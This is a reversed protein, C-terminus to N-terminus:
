VRSTVSDTLRIQCKRQMKRTPLQYQHHDHVRFRIANSNYWNTSACQTFSEGSDIACYKFRTRTTSSIACCSPRLTYVFEPKLRTGRPVPKGISLEAAHYDLTQSLISCLSVRKLNASFDILFRVSLNQLNHYAEPGPGPPPAPLRSLPM